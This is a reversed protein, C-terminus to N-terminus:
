SYNSYFSNALEEASIPSILILSPALYCGPHQEFWSIGLPTNLRPWSYRLEGAIINMGPYAPGPVELLVHAGQCDRDSKLSWPTRQQWTASPCSLEMGRAEMENPSFGAPEQEPWAGESKLIRLASTSM